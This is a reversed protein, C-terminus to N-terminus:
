KCQICHMAHGFYKVLRPKRSLEILVYYARCNSTQCHYYTRYQMARTKKYSCGDLILFEGNSTHKFKVSGASASSTYYFNSIKQ